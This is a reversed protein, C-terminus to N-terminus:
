CPTASTRNIPKVPPSAHWYIAASAADPDLRFIATISRLDGEEPRRAHVYCRKTMHPLPHAEQVEVASMTVHWGSARLKQAFARATEASTAEFSVDGLGMEPDPLAAGRWSRVVLHAGDPIEAWAAWPAKPGLLAPQERGDPYRYTVSLTGTEHGLLMWFGLSLLASLAACALLILRWNM